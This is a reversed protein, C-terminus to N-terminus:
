QQLAEVRRRAYEKLANSLGGATLGRRYSDLAALRQGAGEQAIALGVWWGGRDPVQALAGRYADVSRQFQGLQQSLAGELALYPGSPSDQEHRRLVGLAQEARGASALLRALRLAFAAHKPAVSLGQELLQLAEASRGQALYATVLMDRVKHAAPDNALIPVLEQIAQDPRGGEIRSQAMALSRERSAGSSGSAQRSFRPQQEDTTEAPRAGQGAADARRPEDKPQAAKSAKSAEVKAASEGDTEATAPAKGDTAAAPRSKPQPAAKAHGVKEQEARPPGLLTLSLSKGRARSVAQVRTGPRLWLDLSWGEAGQEASVAEVFDAEVSLDPFAGSYDAGSVTLRVHRGDELRELEHSVSRNADLSLSVQRGNSRFGASHLVARESGGDGGSAGKVARSQSLANPQNQAPRATQSTSVRTPGAAALENGHRYTAWALASVALVAVTAMAWLWGARRGRRVSEVGKLADNGGRGRGAELDRLMDNILSM